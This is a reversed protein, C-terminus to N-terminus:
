VPNPVDIFEVAVKFKEALHEGLARVGLRETAYHGAAIFHINGEKALHMTPEGASGTIYADLHLDIAEQISREAGGSCIGVREIQPPGYAFVLPECDYLERLVHLLAEISCPPISGMCGVRAFEACDTMALARAALANNGIEPHKDLPLHYALLTMEHRFLTELRKKVGGKIIPTERDWLLGHHAIIMDAGAAAAREFFQLSASVGTVIKTVIAKGEVQLGQPGYDQIEAVKLYDNLYTILLDREIM